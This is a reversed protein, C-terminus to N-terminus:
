TYIYIYTEKPPQISELTRQHISQSWWSDKLRKDALDLPLSINADKLLVEKLGSQNLLCQCRGPPSKNQPLKTLTGSFRCCQLYVDEKSYLWGTFFFFVFCLVFQGKLRTIDNPPGVLTNLSGLIPLCGVGWIWCGSLPNKMWRPTLRTRSVQIQICKEAWWSQSLKFREVFVKPSGLTIRFFCPLPIKREPVHGVFLYYVDHNTQNWFLFVHNVLM